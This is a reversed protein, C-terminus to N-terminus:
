SISSFAVFKSARRFPMFILVEQTSFWFMTGVIALVLLHVFCSYIAPIIVFEFNVVRPPLLLPLVM